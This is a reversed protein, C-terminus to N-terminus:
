SLKDIIEDLQKYLNEMTGSNDVHFEATAAVEQIALETSKQNDALFEEWTKGKDDPKETRKILREYRIKPDAEISILHFNPHQRLNVIDASRRIGEVAVVSAKANNVKTVINKALIDNGFAERLIESLKTLHDRDAPLYMLALIEKLVDSFGFVEAGMKQKIYNVAADKGSAIPGVFGLVLAM